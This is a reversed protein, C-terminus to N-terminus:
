NSLVCDGSEIAAQLGNPYTVGDVTIISSSEGTEIDLAAQAVYSKGITRAYFEALQERAAVSLTCRMEGSRPLQEIYRCGDDMLSIKRLLSEGTLPHVFTCTYQTCAALASSLGACPDAAPVQQTAESTPPARSCAVLLCVCAALLILRM